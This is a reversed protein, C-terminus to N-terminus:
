FPTTPYLGDVPFTNKAFAVPSIKVIAEVPVDVNLLLTPIPVVLEPVLSSTIFSSLVV